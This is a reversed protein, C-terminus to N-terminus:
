QCFAPPADGVLRLVEAARPTGFQLLDRVLCQHQRALCTQYDALSGLADVGVTQCVGALDALGLGQEGALDAFPVACPKGIGSALKQALAPLVQVIQKACASKAKELCRANGPKLQLCKLVKAVCGDLRTLATSVYTGGAKTIANQCALLAKGGGANSPSGARAVTGLCNGADLPLQAQQALEAIRPMASTVLEEARCAHQAALCRAIDGISAVSGAFDDSCEAAIQEFGLGRASLLTPQGVQGCSKEVAAVFKDSNKSLKALAKSCKAKAKAVCGADGPKKQECTLLATGCATLIHFRRVVLSKASGAVAPQCKVVQKADTVGLQCSCAALGDVTQATIPQNSPDAVAVDRLALTTDGSADCAGSGLRLRLNMVPGDGAPIVAGGTSLVVLNVHGSAAVANAQCSFGQARGDCSTSGAVLDVSGSLPVIRAFIARVPQDNTLQVPVTVEGDTDSCLDTPIAVTVDARAAPAVWLSVALACLAVRASIRAQEAM